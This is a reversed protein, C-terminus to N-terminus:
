GAGIAGDATFLDEATQDVLVTVGGSQRGLVPPSVNKLGVPQARWRAQQM